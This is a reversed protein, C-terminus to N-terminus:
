LFTVSYQKSFYSCSIMSLTSHQICFLTHFGFLFRSADTTMGTGVGRGNGRVDETVWRAALHERYM